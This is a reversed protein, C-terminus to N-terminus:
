IKKSGETLSICYFIHLNGDEVMMDLNYVEPISEKTLKINEVEDGKLLLMTLNFSMDQYIIYIQSKNDISANFDVYVDKSVVREQISNDLKNFIYQVLDHQVLRFLNLNGEIDRIIVMKDKYFM